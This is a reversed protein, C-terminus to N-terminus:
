GGRRGRKGRKLARLDIDRGEAAWEALQRKVEARRVKQSATMPLSAAFALRGPTKYYVLRSACFAFIEKALSEDAVAGDRVVVCAGVEEGRMEDAVPAVACHAIDPHRLLVNEVEIAAINEGSRRIINKRRDVFYFLGDADRRLVDGTHFYGGAWAAATAAEDKYYGSFFGSRPKDGALRILLEGPEGEAADRGSEDILRYAIDKCPKGICRQGLRRPEAHASICVNVGTETMAWAEILPFGFRQEFNEQHRPDVGAGFGFRVQGGLDDDPSPPMALLIAPMVGLYHLCTAGADRATQWWTSAHFRDLQAICGGSMIMAMSSCCLANMHTLPLPTLLRERGPRLECYGGVENYWRGMSLFYENSLMCGKPRGTTGSTYLLAAEDGDTVAAAPSPAPLEPLTDFEETSIVLTAADQTQLAAAVTPLYEPLSVVLCCDAHSIAYRTEEITFASNVPVVSIGLGNLALLHLFMEARNDLVLAVRLGARYGAQEYIARLRRAQRRAQEYTHNIAKDAYGAAAQQPIHLFDHRPYAAATDCFAAYVTEPAAM